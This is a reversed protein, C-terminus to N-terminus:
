KCLAPHIQCNNRLSGVPTTRFCYTEKYVCLIMGEYEDNIMKKIVDKVRLTSSSKDWPKKFKYFFYSSFLEECKLLTNQDKSKKKGLCDLFLRSLKYLVKKRKRKESECNSWNGKRIEVKCKVYSSPKKPRSMTFSLDILLCVCFLLVKVKKFKM